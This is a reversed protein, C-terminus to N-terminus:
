EANVLAVARQSYPDLELAARASEARSAADTALGALVVYYEASPEGGKAYAMAKRAEADRGLAALCRARVVQFRSEKPRGAAAAEALPLAVAPRGADLHIRAALIMADGDSMDDVLRRVQALAGAADGRLWALAGLGVALGKEQGAAGELSALLMAQIRADDAPHPLAYRLPNRHNASGDVAAVATRLATVAANADGVELAVRASWLWTAPSAPDAERAAELRPAAERAGGGLLDMDVGTLLIQAADPGPLGNLDAGGWAKRASPLDAIALATLVRLQAATPDHPRVALVSEAADAAGRMRDTSGLAELYDAQAGHLHLWFREEADSPEHAALPALWARASAADGAGIQHAALDLRLRAPARAGLKRATAAATDLDGSQLALVGRYGNIEPDDPVLKLLARVRDDAGPAGIRIAAKTAERSVFAVGPQSAAGLRDLADLRQAFTLDKTLAIANLACWTDRPDVVLCRVASARADELRSEAVAEAVEARLVAVHDPRANRARKLLAVRLEPQTDAEAYFTALTALTEADPVRVAAREALTIAEEIGSAGGRFRARWANALLLTRPEAVPGVRKVMEAMTLDAAGPAGEAPAAPAAPALGMADATADPRQAAMEGVRFHWAVAFAGAFTGVVALGGLVPRLVPPLPRRPARPPEPWAVGPFFLERFAPHSAVPLWSGDESRVFDTGALERGKVRAVVAGHDLM